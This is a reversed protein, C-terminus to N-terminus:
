TLESRMSKTPNVRLLVPFNKMTGLKWGVNKEIERNLRGFTCGEASVQWFGVGHDAQGIVIVFLVGLRAFHGLFRREEAPPQLVLQFTGASEAEGCGVGRACEWPVFGAGGEGTGAGVIIFAGEVSRSLQQSVSAM